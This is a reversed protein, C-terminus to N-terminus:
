NQEILNKKYNDSEMKKLTQLILDYIISTSAMAEEFLDYAHLSMQYIDNGPVNKYAVYYFNTIPALYDFNDSLDLTLNIIEGLKIIFSTISDKDKTEKKLEDQLFVTYKRGFDYLEYIKETIDKYSLLESKNNESIRPPNVEVEKQSLIFSWTIFYFTHFLERLDSKPNWLCSQYIGTEEVYESRYIKITDLLPSIEESFDIFQSDNTIQLFTEAVVEPAIDFQCVYSKCYDKPFCPYCSQTSALTYVNNLYPSTDHARTVGMSLILSPKNYFSSLHSLASDNGIFFSSQKIISKCEQFDTKGIYNKIRNNKKICDKFSESLISEEEKTGLLIIESTTKELLICILKMWSDIPWMKKEQSAFPHIVIYSDETKKVRNDTPTIGIIKKYLDVISFPNYAGKMVQSFVFQSWKDEIAMDNDIKRYPGLKFNSFLLSHLYQSSKSFTLNVSVTINHSNIRELFRLTKYKVSDLTSPVEQEFLDKTELLYLYNFVKKLENELGKCFKERGIFILDISEDLNSDKFAQITQLVDGVRSLQIIAM